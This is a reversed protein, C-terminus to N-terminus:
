LTVQPLSVLWEFGGDEGEQRLILSGGQGRLIGAAAALSNAGLEPLDRRLAYPEMIEAPSLGAFGGGTFRVSVRLEGTGGERGEAPQADVRVTGEPGAFRHSLFLLADFAQALLRKDSRVGLPGSARM